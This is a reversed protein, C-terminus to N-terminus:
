TRVCGLWEERDLECWYVQALSALLAEVASSLINLVQLFGELWGVLWFVSGRPDEAINAASIVYVSLLCTHARLLCPM